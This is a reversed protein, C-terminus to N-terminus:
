LRHLPNQNPFAFFSFFLLPVRVVRWMCRRCVVLSRNIAPRQRSQPRPTGSMAPQLLGGSGAVTGVTSGSSSAASSNLFTSADSVPLIRAPFSIARLPLWWIETIGRSSLRLLPPPFGDPSPPTPAPPPSPPLPSAASRGAGWCCSSSSPPHPQTTQRPENTICWL